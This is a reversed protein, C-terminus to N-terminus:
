GEAAMSSSRTCRRADRSRSVDAVYTYGLDLTHLTACGAMSVDTVGRCWSVDLTHLAACGSLASVDTVGQCNRLDLTHLAACGVLASVDTVEGCNALKLTRLAACGALTSLDSVGNHSLDITHLATCSTLASADTLERDYSLAFTGLDWARRLAHAQRVAAEVDDVLVKGIPLRLESLAALTGVSVFPLAGLADVPPLFLVVEERAPLPLADLGVIARARRTASRTKHREDDDDSSEADDASRGGGARARTRM